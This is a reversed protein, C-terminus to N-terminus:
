PWQTGKQKNLDQRQIQHCEYMGPVAWENDKGPIQLTFWNELKWIRTLM